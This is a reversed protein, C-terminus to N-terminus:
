RSTRTEGPRVIGHEYAFVVAQVRDRLDLKALVNGFHTKVTAESVVLADAAERNSRGGAILTLIELERATLDALASPADATGPSRAFEEVLRRTVSPSLLAAQRVRARHPSARPASSRSRRSPARGRAELQGSVPDGLFRQRICELVGRPGRRDEGEPIPEIRELDVDDVVRWRDCDRPIVAAGAGAQDAQALAHREQDTWRCTRAFARRRRTRAVRSRCIRAM